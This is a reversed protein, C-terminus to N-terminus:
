RAPRATAILRDRAAFLRNIELPYPKTVPGKKYHKSYFRTRSLKGGTTAM